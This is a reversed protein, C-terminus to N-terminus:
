VCSPCSHQTQYSWSQSAFDQYRCGFIRKTTMVPLNKEELKMLTYNVFLITYPIYLCSKIYMPHFLFEYKLALCSWNWFLCKEKARKPRRGGRQINCWADAKHMSWVEGIASIGAGGYLDIKRRRIGAICTGLLCCEKRLGILPWSSGGSVKHTCVDRTFKIYLALLTLIDNGKFTAIPASCVPSIVPSICPWM